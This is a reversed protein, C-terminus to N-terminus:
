SRKRQEGREAQVERQQEFRVAVLRLPAEGDHLDRRAEGTEDVHRTSVADAVHQEFVDDAGLERLQKWALHDQFGRDDTEGPIGLELEVVFAPM